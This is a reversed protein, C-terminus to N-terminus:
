SLLLDRGDMPECRAQLQFLKYEVGESVGWGRLKELDSDKGIYVYDV